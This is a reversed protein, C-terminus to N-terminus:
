KLTETKEICVLAGNQFYLVTKGTFKESVINWDVLTKALKKKWLADPLSVTNISHQPPM